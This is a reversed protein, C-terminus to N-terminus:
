FHIAPSFNISCVQKRVFTKIPLMMQLLLITIISLLRLQLIIFPPIAALINVQNISTFRGTLCSINQTGNNRIYTDVDKGRLQLTDSFSLDFSVAATYIVGGNQIFNNGETFTPLKTDTKTTTSSSNLLARRTNSPTPMCAQVLVLTSLMILKSLSKLFIPKLKKETRM